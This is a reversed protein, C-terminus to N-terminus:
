LWNLCSSRDSLTALTTYLPSWIVIIPSRKSPEFNSVVCGINLFSSATSLAISSFPTMATYSFTSCGDRKEWSNTPAKGIISKNAINKKKMLCICPPIDPLPPGIDNPLLLALSISPPFTLVVKLSTAPHSSALCSTWSNTSKKFSGVFNWFSPPLIGLPTKITPGGPVPLVRMALATAPSALTGNKVIDPESKTSINTPTPAELTLSINSWALFCDGHITNISSISATPLCLPVPRPPPWSSLSCVNFWNNTSISPNSPFSPTITIAAVFLGSTRSGANSLGPLNSLCTTTSKGSILPLSAM